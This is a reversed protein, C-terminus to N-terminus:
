CRRGESRGIEGVATGNGHVALCVESRPLSPTDFFNTVGPNDRTNAAEHVLGNVGEFPISKWIPQPLAIVGYVAALCCFRMSDRVVNSIIRCINATLFSVQVQGDWPCLVRVTRRVICDVTRLDRGHFVVDKVGTNPCPCDEALLWAGTM